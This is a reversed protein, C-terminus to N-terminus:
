KNEETNRFDLKSAYSSDYYLNTLSFPTKKLGPNSDEIQTLTKRKATFSEATEAYSIDETLLVNTKLPKINNNYYKESKRPPDKVSEKFLRDFM